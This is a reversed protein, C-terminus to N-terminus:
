WKPGVMLFRCERHEHAMNKGRKVTSNQPKNGRKTASITSPGRVPHRLPVRQEAETVSIKAHSRDPVDHKTIGLAPSRETLGSQWRDGSAKTTTVALRLVLFSSLPKDTRAMYKDNPVGASSLTGYARTLMSVLYHIM